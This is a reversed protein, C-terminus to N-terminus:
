QQEWTGASSLRWGRVRGTAGFVSIARSNYINKDLPRDIYLVGGNYDGNQDYAGGDPGFVITTQGTTQNPGYGFDIATAGSGFGEPASTPLGTRVAFNTDIPLTFTNVLQLAAGNAPQYQVTITAPTAGVTPAFSIVYEHSQTIAMNRANRLVGLTRDYALDVHSKNFLPLLAMIAVGTMISGIVIVIMLEVISFGKNKARSMPDPM